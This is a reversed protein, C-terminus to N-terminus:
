TTGYPVKEIGRSYDEPTDIDRLITDDTWAMFTQNVEALIDRMSLRTSDAEVVREIVCNDILVPHGRRGNYEPIVAAAAPAEVLARYVEIKLFPMDGPVVFFRPSNIERIGAKISSFMGDKWDRNLVVRVRDNAEFIKVLEDGRYGVVLVAHECVELATNIVTEILTSEGFALLPKWGNM